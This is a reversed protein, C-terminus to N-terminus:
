RRIWTQPVFGFTEIKTAPLRVSVRVPQGRKKGAEDMAACVEHLFSNMVEQRVRILRPDDFPIKTGDEGHAEAFQKLMPEEYGLVTPYRCFGLNM